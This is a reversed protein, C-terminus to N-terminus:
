WFGWQGTQMIYLGLGLNTVAHALVCCALSRTKVALLNYIAGTLLAPIFDPGFHALGFMVTVVGFSFWSFTGFSVKTFDEKILYRLLFGRWFIEELLPVIVVLRIFRLILTGWYLAASGAFLGPNFGDTREEAGLLWQPSIWLALVVLGTLVATIVHWKAGWEYAKWFWVLLAGCLVTQLPFIWYKPEALWLPANEAPAFSHVLSILALGGMFVAFPLVYAWLARSDLASRSDTM